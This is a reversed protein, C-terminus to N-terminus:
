GHLYLFVFTMILCTVCVILLETNHSWFGWPKSIYEPATHFYSIKNMM